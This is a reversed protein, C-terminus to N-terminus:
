QSLIIELRDAQNPHFKRLYNIKGNISRLKSVYEDSSIPTKKLVFQHVRARLNKRYNSPLSIQGNNVVLKNVIQRRNRAEVKCKKGKLRTGKRMCMLAMEEFLRTIDKKTLTQNTSLTFDDIFRSYEISRQHLNKYLIHESNWFVLQALYSSPGWGQPLENQYSTLRTLMDAVDPAFPFFCQWINRIVQENVSPFFGSIDASIILRKGQHIKANSVHGRSSGDPNNKLGGHLYSPYYVTSLIKRNLSAHIKKLIISGSHTVRISGDPKQELKGIRWHSEINESINLLLPLNFGLCSALSATSAISPANPLPRFDKMMM